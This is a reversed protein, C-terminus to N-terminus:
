FGVIDEKKVWSCWSGPSLRGTPDYAVNINVMDGEVEDVGWWMLHGYESVIREALLCFEYDDAEDCPVTPEPIVGRRLRFVDGRSVRL